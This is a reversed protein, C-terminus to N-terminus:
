NRLFQKCENKVTYQKVTHVLNLEVRGRRGDQVM